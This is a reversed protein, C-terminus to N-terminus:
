LVRRSSNIELTIVGGRFENSNSTAIVRSPNKEIFEQFHNFSCQLRSQTSDCKINLYIAGSLSKLSDRMVYMKTHEEHTPRRKQPISKVEKDLEEIQSRTLSGFLLSASNTLDVEIISSIKKTNNTDDQIYYIVVMHMPIGSSVADFVRLCDAMCVTNKSCSTKVSIDCSDLKNLKAPLDMKSTYKINALDEKTAGYVNTIIEREWSFGHAQVERRKTTM